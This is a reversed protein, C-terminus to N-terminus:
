SGFAFVTGMMIVSLVVALHAMVFAVSRSAM